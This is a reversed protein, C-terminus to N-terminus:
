PKGGKSSPQEDTAEPGEESRYLTPWTDLFNQVLQDMRGVDVQEQDLIEAKITNDPYFVLLLYEPKEPLAPALPVADVRKWAEIPPQELRNGGSPSYSSSFPYAHHTWRVQISPPLPRTPDLPVVLDSHKPYRPPDFPTGDLPSIRYARVAQGFDLTMVKLPIHGPPLVRAEPMHTCAMSLALGLAVMVRRLRSTLAM